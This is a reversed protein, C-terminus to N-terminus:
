VVQLVYCINYLINYTTCPICYISHLVCQMVNAFTHHPREGRSNQSSNDAGITKVTYDHQAMITCFATSRALEGGQDTWVFKPKNDKLGHQTLFTNLTVIPPEKKKTLFIWMHQTAAETVLLYSSHGDHSTKM